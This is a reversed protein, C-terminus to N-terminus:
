FEIATITLPSSTSLQVSEVVEDGISVDGFDIAGPEISLAGSGAPVPMPPAPLTTLALRASPIVEIACLLVNGVKRQIKIPLTGTSPVVSFTKM